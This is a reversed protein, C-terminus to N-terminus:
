SYNWENLFLRMGIGGEGKENILDLLRYGGIIRDLLDMSPKPPIEPVGESLSEDVISPAKSEDPHFSEPPSAYAMETDSDEPSVDMGSDVQSFLDVPAAQHSSGPRWVGKDNRGFCM